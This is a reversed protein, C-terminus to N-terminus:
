TALLAVYSNEWGLCQGAVAFSICAAMKEVHYECKGKDEVGGDRGNRQWVICRSNEVAVVGSTMVTEVQENM